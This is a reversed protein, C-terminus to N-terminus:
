STEQNLRKVAPRVQRSYDRDPAWAHRAPAGHRLRQGPPRGHGFLRFRVRCGYLSEFAQGIFIRERL